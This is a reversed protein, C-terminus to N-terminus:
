VTGYINKWILKQYVCKELGDMQTDESKRLTSGQTFHGHCFRDEPVPTQFFNSEKHLSLSNPSLNQNRDLSNM